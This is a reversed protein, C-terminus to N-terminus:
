ACGGGGRVWREVDTRDDANVLYVYEAGDSAATWIEVPGQHYGTFRADAPLRAPSRFDAQSKPFHELVGKPDRTWLAGNRDRPASLASSGLFAAEQWNCHEPGAAVTLESQLVERGDRFWPDGPWEPLDEFREALSRPSADEEHRSTAAHLLPRGALPESLAVLVRGLTACARAEQGDTDVAQILVHESTEEVRVEVTGHCGTGFQIALDSEEDWLRILQWPVSAEGERLPRVQTPMVVPLADTAPTKPVDYPTPEAVAGVLPAFGAARSSLTGPAQVVAVAGVVALVGAFSLGASALVRRRRRRVARRVVVEFPPAPESRLVAAAATLREHLDPM